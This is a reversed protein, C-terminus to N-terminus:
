DKFLNKYSLYYFLKLDGPHKILNLKKLEETNEDQAYGVTSREVIQLSHSFSL